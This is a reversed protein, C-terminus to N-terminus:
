YYGGEWVCLCVSVPIVYYYQNYSTIIPSNLGSVINITLILVAFLNSSFWHAFVTTDSVYM